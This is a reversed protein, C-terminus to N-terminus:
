RALMSSVGVKRCVNARKKEPPKRTIVYVQLRNAVRLFTLFLQIYLNRGYKYIQIGQCLFSLLLLEQRWFAFSGGNYLWIGPEHIYTDLLFKRGNEGNEEALIGFPLSVAFSPQYIGHNLTIRLGSEGCMQMINMYSLHLLRQGSLQDYLLFFRIEHYFM